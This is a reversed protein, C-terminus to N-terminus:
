NLLYSLMLSFSSNRRELGAVAAAGEDDIDKLGGNYRVELGLKNPARYGIGAVYGFDISYPNDTIDSKVTTTRNGSSNTIETIYRANAIFSVQPGLDIFLGGASFHLMLPVDVYNLRYSDQVQNSGSSYKNRAGKSTYLAELQIGLLDNFHQQVFIGGTYGVRHDYNKANEGKFTALTGGAKIGVHQAFGVSTIFALLVALTTKKM